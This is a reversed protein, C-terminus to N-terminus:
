SEDGEYSMVQELVDVPIRDHALLVGGAARVAAVFPAAWLDEWVLLAAADGPELLEGALSVDDEGILDVGAPALGVFLEAEDDDIASFEAVEVAGDQLKHIVMLDLVRILGRDVLDILEGLVTGDFKPQKFALAILQVPGLQEASETSTNSM